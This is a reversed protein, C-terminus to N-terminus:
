YNILKLEIKKLAEVKDKPPIGIISIGGNINAIIEIKRNKQEEIFKKLKIGQESLVHIEQNDSGKLATGSNEEEIYAGDILIDIKNLINKIEDRNDEKLEKLSNGSYVMIDLEKTSNKIENVLCELEVYQLFPEGGSITVGQINKENNIQNIIEDIEIYFGNKNKPQTEEAFCNKCRRDCGQFYIIFRDGM